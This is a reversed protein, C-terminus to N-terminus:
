ASAKPKKGVTMAVILAIVLVIINFGLNVYFASRLEPGVVVAIAQGWFTSIFMGFFIGCLVISQAFAQNEPSALVSSTLLAAPILGVAVGVAAAAALSMGYNVAFSALLFELVICVMYLHITFKKLVAFIKGFVLSILCTFASILSSALGAQASGGFGEATIFVSINSWYVMVSMYAIMGLLGYLYVIPKISAKKEGPSSQVVEVTPHKPIFIITLLLPVLGLLHLWYATQWSITGLLGSLNACLFGLIGGVALNLGMMNTMAQGEYYDPIFGTVLVISFGAGVGVIARCILLSYIDSTFIAAIGGIVFIIAGINFLTKKNVTQTLKGCLLITPVMLLSPMTAILNILAPDTFGQADVMTSILPVTLQLYALSFFGNICIAAGMMFKRFKM